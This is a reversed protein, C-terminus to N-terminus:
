GIKDALAAIARRRAQERNDGTAYAVREQGYYDMRARAQYVYPDDSIMQVATELKWIKRAALLDAILM